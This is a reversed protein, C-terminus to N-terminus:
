IEKREIDQNFNSTFHHFDSCTMDSFRSSDEEEDEEDSNDSGSSLSEKKKKEKEDQIFIKM